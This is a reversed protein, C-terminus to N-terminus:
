ESPIEFLLEPNAKIEKGHFIQQYVSYPKGEFSRIIPCNVIISDNPSLAEVTKVFKNRDKGSMYKSINSLYLTDVQLRNKKLIKAIKKFTKTNRVDETILAFKDNEALTKIYEFKEDSALWSGDRTLERRVEEQPSYGESYEPLDDNLNPSFSITSKDLYEVMNNVFEERNSSEKILHLTKALFKQNQPNFDCVVAYSSRRTAVVDLNYWGSFGIHCANEKREEQALITQVGRFNSENTSIYIGALNGKVSFNNLGEIKQIIPDHSISKNIKALTQTKKYSLLTKGINVSINGLKSQFPINGVSSSKSFGDFPSKGSINM